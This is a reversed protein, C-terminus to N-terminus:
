KHNFEHCIKLGTASSLQPIGLNGVRCFSVVGRFVLKQKGKALMRSKKKTQNKAACIWRGSCDYVVNKNTEDKTL